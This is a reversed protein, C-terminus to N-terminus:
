SMAWTLLYKDIKDYYVTFEKQMDEKTIRAHVKGKSSYVFPSVFLDKKFDVGGKAYIKYLVEKAGWIVHLHEFKQKNFNYKIEEAGLFKKSIVEIRPHIEEIDIGISGSNSIMVAIFGNSHSISISRDSLYPKGKKDYIIIQKSEGPLLLQLANRVTLWERKRTDSQFSNWEDLEDMSLSCNNLLDAIEEISKWVVVSYKETSKQWVVPMSNM